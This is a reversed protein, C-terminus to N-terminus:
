EGERWRRRLPAELRRRLRFSWGTEPLIPEVLLPVVGALHAAMMDTFLQDGVAAVQRRKLGMARAARRYGFPLPKLALATYRLGLTAAFPRCREERANSVMCLAIGAERMADLWAPVGELPTQSHHTALTNDADLLLGRVGLARLDDATIDTVRDFRRAPRFLAMGM